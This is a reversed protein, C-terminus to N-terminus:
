AKKILKTLKREKEKGSRKVASHLMQAIEKSSRDRQSFMESKM